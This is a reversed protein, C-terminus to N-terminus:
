APRRAQAPRAQAPRLCPWPRRRRQAVAPRSGRLRASQGPEPQGWPGRATVAPGRSEGGRGCAAGVAAAGGGGISHLVSGAQAIVQQGYPTLAAVSIAMLVAVAAVTSVLRLRQIRPGDSVAAGDRSHTEIPVTRLWTVVSDLSGGARRAVWS